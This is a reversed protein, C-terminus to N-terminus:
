RDKVPMFHKSAAPGNMQQNYITDKSLQKNSSNEDIEAKNTHTNNFSNDVQENSNSVKHGKVSKQRHLLVEQHSWNEFYAITQWVFPFQILSILQEHM